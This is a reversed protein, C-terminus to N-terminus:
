LSLAYRKGPLSAIRGSCELGLLVSPLKNSVIGSSLMLHDFDVIKHQSLINLIISEEETPQDFLSPTFNPSVSPNRWGLYEILDDPESIIAAINKKILLNCGSSHNDGIRGPVAFVERNYSSALQATIMSGGKKDTEIVVTCESIGAIIRNRTPFLERDPNTGSPFETLLGGNEILQKAVPTHLAPYIRDLGHALCAITALGERIAARHACIDIGYALGSVVVPQFPKICAIIEACISKGYSTANRTGVISIFRNVNLNINGRYFLVAPADDCARLNSPYHAHYVPIIQINNKKAFDFEYQGEDLPPKNKLAAVAAPGLGPIQLLEKKSLQFVRQASGAFELLKKARIAGIGAIRSLTIAHILESDDLM